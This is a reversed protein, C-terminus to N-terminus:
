PYIRTITAWPRFPCQHVVEVRSSPLDQPRMEVRWGAFKNAGGVRVASGETFEVPVPVDRRGDSLSWRLERFSCEPREIVFAGAIIPVGDRESTQAFSFQRVVPYLNGEAAGIREGMSHLLVVILAAIGAAKDLSSWSSRKLFHRM